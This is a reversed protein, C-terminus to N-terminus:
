FESGAPLGTSNYMQGCIISNQSNYGQWVVVFGGDNLGTVVAFIANNGVQFEGSPGVGICTLESPPYPNPSFPYSFTCNMTTNM